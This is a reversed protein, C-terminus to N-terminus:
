GAGEEQLRALFSGRAAPRDKFRKILENWLHVAVTRSTLQEELRRAPDAVWASDRHGFPYLVDAPLGWRALGERKLAATVAHPGATGWPMEALGTRGTAELRRRARRRERRGLWPPVEREAFLGLLTALAPSDPPLRLVANGLMSREQWGVLYPREADLPALLYVDADVWTGLARRQLEYRFWNAFLAVSGSRHRMVRDEPLIEAADRVDVGEPVGPPREYCYLALEHGQRLVSLMCARELPGFRPGIWLTACRM